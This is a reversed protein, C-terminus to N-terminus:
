GMKAGNGPPLARNDDRNFRPACPRFPERHPGRRRPRRPPRGATGRGRSAHSQPPPARPNPSPCGDGSGLRGTEFVHGLAERFEAADGLLLLHLDDHVDEGVRRASEDIALKRVLVPVRKGERNEVLPRSPRRSRAELSADRSGGDDRGRGRGRARSREGRSVRERM